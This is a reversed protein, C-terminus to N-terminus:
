SCHPNFREFESRMLHTCPAIVALFARDEDVRANLMSCVDYLTCFHVGDCALHHCIMERIANERRSKPQRTPEILTDDPLAPLPYDFARYYYRVVHKVSEVRARLAEEARAYESTGPELFANWSMCCPM